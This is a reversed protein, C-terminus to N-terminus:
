LRYSSTFNPHKDSNHFSRLDKNVARIMVTMSIVFNSIKKVQRCKVLARAEARHRDRTLQTDLAPHRYKKSFREKVVVERGLFTGTYLRAEAGQKFM